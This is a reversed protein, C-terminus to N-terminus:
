SLDRRELILLSQERRAMVNGPLNARSPADGEAAIRALLHWDSLRMSQEPWNMTRWLVRFVERVILPPEMSLVGCNVVLQCVPQNNDDFYRTVSCQGALRTAVQEFYLEVERAQGALRLFAGEVDKNFSERLLPLLQRRVRNRSFRLDENSADTRFDQGLQKLYDELERKWLDLLPRVLTIGPSLPRCPRMGAVGRLGTGRVIRQLVTEVQDDATHATVVWRAGCREAVGRLFDYRLKRAAAEWGDGHESALVAVDATGLDVDLGLSRCTDAVWAADADAEERRLGHNLHAVCLRGLGGSQQKVSQVARLLAVSDAGGSVALVVNTDRWKGPPWSEVLRQEVEHLEGGISVAEVAVIGRAEGV